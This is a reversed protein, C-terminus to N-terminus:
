LPTIRHVYEFRVFTAAHDRLFRDAQANLSRRGAPDDPGLLPPRAPPDEPVLAIVDLLDPAIHAARAPADEGPLRDDPDAADFDADAPPPPVDDDDAGAEHVSPPAAPRPAPGANDSDLLAPRTGHLGLAVARAAIKARLCADEFAAVDPRPADAPITAAWAVARVLGADVADNYLRLNEYTPVYVVLPVSFNSAAAVDAPADVARRDRSARTRIRQMSASARRRRRATGPPARRPAAADTGAGASHPARRVSLAAALCRRVDDLAVRTGDAPAPATKLARVRRILRQIVTTKAPQRRTAM